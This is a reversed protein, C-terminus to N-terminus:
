LKLENYYITGDTNVAEILITGSSRRIVQAVESPTSVSQRNLYTIIMGEKIGADKMRGKEVSAVKVGHSLRLKRLSQEPAPVLTAGFVNIKEAAAVVNENEGSEKGQLKANITLRDKGRVVTLSLTDDPSYRNVIEQVQSPSTVRTSGIAVLVDGAKVGAKQAAGGEVVEAIYVGDSLSLKMEDKIKDSNKVMSIGLMGRRVSGYKIFDDTIKKAINVPVAFSYGSYSGTQSIIATNIGVLEGRINVLAGGSNGPNVAADTQIFSEIKFEGTNNPMSRGKASVIGATITGTLGYPSGIALVWEGLRLNDSNGLPIVPLDQADIKILAIDTAPDTGILRATFVKDDDLTVEIEDAGSVVHNNTVIYGDQSIIVGSGSGVQERPMGYGGGGGFFYEFIDPMEQAKSRKVVKVFVVGKVSKEAAYTFDPYESSITGNQVQAGQLPSDAVLESTQYSNGKSKLVADRVAFTSLTLAGIVVLSILINRKM